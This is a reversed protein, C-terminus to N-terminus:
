FASCQLPDTMIISENIEVIGSVVVAWTELLISQPMSIKM